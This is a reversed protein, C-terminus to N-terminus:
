CWLRRRVACGGQAPGAVQGDGAVADGVGDVCRPAALDPPM